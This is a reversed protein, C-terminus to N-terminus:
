AAGEHIHKQVEFPSKAIAAIVYRQPAAPADKAKGLLWVSVQFAQDATVTLGTARYIADVVTRLNTIGQQAALRKTMPSVEIADTSVSARNSGSQSKSTKSSDNAQVPSSQSPSGSGFVDRVNARLNAKKNARVARMREKAAAREEEVQEKTRQYKAWDHFWWCGGQEDWVWLGALVLETATDHDGGLIRLAARKVQGDTLHKACYSGARVWLAVADSSLELVKPHAWFGDDVNFWVM